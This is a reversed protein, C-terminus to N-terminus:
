NDYSWNDHAILRGGDVTTYGWLVTNLRVTTPNGPYVRCTDPISRFPVSRVACLVTSCHVYDFTQRKTHYIGPLLYVLWYLWHTDHTIITGNVAFFEPLFDSTIFVYPSRRACILSTEFTRRLFTQPYGLKPHCHPPRSHRLKEAFDRSYTQPTNIGYNLGNFSNERYFKTCAIERYTFM